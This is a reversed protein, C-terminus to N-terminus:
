HSNKPNTAANAAAARQAPTLAAAILQMATADSGNRRGAAYDDLQKRLYAVRQGALRPIAGTGAGASGHCGSCAAVNAGGDRYLAEGAADARGSAAAAPLASFYHAVADIDADGLGQATAQMADDDNRRRGARFDRLQQVLYAANQGALNPFRDSSSIGNLNHCIGCQVWPPDGDQAAATGSFLPMALVGGVAILRSALAHESRM